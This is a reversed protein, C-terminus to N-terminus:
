KMTVGNGIHIKKIINKLLNKHLCIFFLVVLSMLGICYNKYGEYKEERVNTNKSKRLREVERLFAKAENKKMFNEIKVMGYNKFHKINEKTLIM